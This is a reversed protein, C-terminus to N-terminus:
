FPLDDILAPVDETKIAEPEKMKAEKGNGIYFIGEAAKKDEKSNLKFSSIQGHDNVADNLWETLNVYIKGNKESKSFASHRENAKLILDTLCLSVNFLRPM